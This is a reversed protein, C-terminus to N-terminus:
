VDSTQGYIQWIGCNIDLCIFEPHVLSIRSTMIIIVHQFLYFFNSM